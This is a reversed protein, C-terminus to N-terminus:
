NVTLARRSTCDRFSVDCRCHGVYEEAATPEARKGKKHRRGAERTEKVDNEEPSRDSSADEAAEPQVRHWLLASLACICM